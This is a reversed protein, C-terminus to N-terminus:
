LNRWFYCLAIKLLRIVYQRSKLLFVFFLVFSRFYGLLNQNAFQTWNKIGGATFCDFMNDVIIKREELSIEALWAEIICQRWKSFYSMKEEVLTGESIIWNDMYHQFFGRKSTKIVKINTDNNFLLGIITHKPVIKITKNGILAYRSEELLNECIGPGDNNYIATIDQKLEDHCMVSSYVALLGGKSHGGIINCKGRDIVKELYKVALRQSPTVRYAISFDEKWGHMTGDTGRFAIYNMTDNLRIKLAAFQIHEGDSISVYHSLKCNRFRKSAAMYGFLKVPHVLFRGMITRQRSEGKFKDFAERVSIESGDEAVIDDLNYYVFESLVLNDVDNFPMTEFTNDRNKIVYTVFNDKM